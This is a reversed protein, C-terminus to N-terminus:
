QLSQYLMSVGGRDGARKLTVVVLGDSENAEYRTGAISILGGPPSLFEDDVVTAQGSIRRPEERALEVLVSMAAASAGDDGDRHRQLLHKLRVRLLDLPFSSARLRALEEEDATVESGGRGGAAQAGFLGSLEAQRESGSEDGPGLVIVAGDPLTLHSLGSGVM